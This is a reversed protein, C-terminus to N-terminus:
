VALEVIRSLVLGYLLFLAVLALLPGWPRTGRNGTFRAVTFGLVVWLTVDLPWAVIVSETVIGIVASIPGGAYMLTLGITECSGTCLDRNILTLGVAFFVIGFGLLFVTSLASDRCGFGESKSTVQGAITLGSLHAGALYTEGL